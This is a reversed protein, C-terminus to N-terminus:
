RKLDDLMKYYEERSLEGSAYRKRLIEMSSDILTHVRSAKILYGVVLLILGVFIIPMIWLFPNWYGGGWYGRHFPVGWFM